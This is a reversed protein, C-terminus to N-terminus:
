LSIWFHEGTAMMGILESASVYTFPKRIEIRYHDQSTYGSGSGDSRSGTGLVYSKKPRYVHAECKLPAQLVSLQFHAGVELSICTLRQVNLFISPFSLFM